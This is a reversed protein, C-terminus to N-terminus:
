CPTKLMRQVACCERFGPGLGLNFGVVEVEANVEFGKRNICVM